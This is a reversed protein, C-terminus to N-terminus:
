IQDWAWIAYSTQNDLRHGSQKLTLLISGRHHSEHAVFYSLTTFIGRKFGRHRPRGGLVGLLFSEIADGSETLAAMLERRNPSYKGEFKEVGEALAKARGELHAVRINHLHAFQRAVNRGGRSSLSCALGQDSIREILFLNIRQNTRWAEVLEAALEPPAPGSDAM